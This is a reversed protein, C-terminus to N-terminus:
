KPHLRLVTWPIPKRVRGIQFHQSALSKLGCSSWHQIHGPTNGLDTLYKGRFFNMARWLPERPTSIIAQHRCIRTLETLASHPDDLHELVELMVITDVSKDPLPLKYVSSQFFEIDPNRHSAARLLSGGIDTARLTQSPSLAAHLYKTSYGAGCGIELISAGATSPDIMDIVAAYFRDILWHAARGGKEYKETFQIDSNIM